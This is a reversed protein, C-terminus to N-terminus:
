RGLSNYLICAFEGRTVVRKPAFTGNGYGKILGLGQAIAVYGVMDGSISAEDLFKTKYIGKIEAAATLNKMRVFYAAASERSLLDERKDEKRLIGRRLLEGFCEDLYEETPERFYGNEVLKILYAAEKKTIQENPKFEEEKSLFIGNDSFARVASESFHGALDKQLEYEKKERSELNWDLEEGTKASIYAPANDSLKYILKFERAYRGGYRQIGNPVYYLECLAKEIYKETALELSIIDEPSEFEMDSDWTKSFSRIKGTAPDVTVTVSNQQYEIGNELRIFSFSGSAPTTESLLTKEIVDSAWTKAFSAAKGEMAADSMPMYKKGREPYYSYFSILSKTMADFVVTGGANDKGELSVTATYRPAEDKGSVKRYSISRINYSMITSGAMTRITSTIEERTMLSKLEEIKQLEEETLEERASEDKMASNAGSGAEFIVDDGSIVEVEFEAMDRASLMIGRVRPEYVLIAKKEGYASRYLLRMDSLEGLKTEADLLEKLNENKEVNETETWQSNMSLIEGTEKHVSISVNNGSVRIGNVERDFSVNAYNSHISLTNVEGEFELERAYSPNVRMLWTRARSIYEEDSFKSIAGEHRDESNYTYYSIIKGDSLVSCEIHKTSEPNRWVLQYVLVDGSEYKSSEFESYESPIMLASKAKGVISALDEGAAFVPLALSFLMLVTLLVCVTRKM